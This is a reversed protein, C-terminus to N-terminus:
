LKDAQHQLFDALTAAVKKGSVTMWQDTAPDLVYDGNKYRLRLPYSSIVSVDPHTIPGSAPAGAPPTLDDPDVVPTRYVDAATPTRNTLDDYDKGTVGRTINRGLQKAVGGLWAGPAALPNTIENILM